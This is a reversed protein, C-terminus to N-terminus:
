EDGVGRQLQSDLKEYESLLKCFHEALWDAREAQGQAEAQAILDAGRQLRRELQGVLALLHPRSSARQCSIHETTDHYAFPRLQMSDGADTTGAARQWRAAIKKNVTGGGM